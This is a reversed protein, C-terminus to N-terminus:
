LGLTLRLGNTLVLGLHGRPDATVGQAQIATGALGPLAPIPLRQAAFGGASAVVPMSSFTTAPDVLITCSPGWPFTAARFALMVAGAAGPLTASVDLGYHASGVRPLGYSSLSPLPGAVCAPTALVAAGTIAGYAWMTVGERQTTALWTLGAQRDFAMATGLGAPPANATVIQRWVSGDWEWTSTGFAVV